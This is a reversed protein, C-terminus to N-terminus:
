CPGPSAFEMASFLSLWVQQWWVLPPNATGALPTIITPFPLWTCLQHQQRVPFLRIAGSRQKYLWIGLLSLVQPWPSMSLPKQASEFTKQSQRFHLILCQHHYFTNCRIIHARFSAMEGKKRWESIVPHLFVSVFSINNRHLGNKCIKM